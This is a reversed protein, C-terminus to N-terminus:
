VSTRYADPDLMPKHLAAMTEESIAGDRAYEEGARKVLALYPEVVAETGTANLLPSEVCLIMPNGKGFLRNFSFILGDFNGEMDPFGSGSILMMKTDREFRKPHYTEGNEGVALDPMSHPLIRDIIAKMPAPFGYCYLPASWIVLDSEAIKDLIAAMDDQIVCKGPTKFWCSFCGLCPKVNADIANILEFEEGMGECFARTIRITDSRERKPSGNIVLIKM